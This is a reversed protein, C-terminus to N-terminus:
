KKYFISNFYKVSIKSNTYYQIGLQICDDVLSSVFVIVVAVYKTM